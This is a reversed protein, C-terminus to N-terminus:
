GALSQNIRGILWDFTKSYLEKALADRAQNAADVNNVKVVVDQPRLVIRSRGRKNKACLARSLSLFAVHFADTGGM